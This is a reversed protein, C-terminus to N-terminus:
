KWARKAVANREATLPRAPVGAVVTRPTVDKVVVAGAAVVAEEGIEIGERITAGIGV